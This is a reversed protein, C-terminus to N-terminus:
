PARLRLEAGDLEYLVLGTNPDRAVERGRVPLEPGVVVYDARIPTGSADVITRGNARAPKVVPPWAWLLDHATRYAFVETGPRYFANELLGNMRSQTDAPVVSIPRDPLAWVGAVRADPGVAATIWNPDPAVWDESAEGAFVTNATLVCMTILLLNTVVIMRLLRSRRPPLLMFAATAGLSLALLIALLLAGTGLAPRLLGWPVLAVTGSSVGWARGSLFESYPIFLPAALALGAAPLAFRRPRPLGVQIWLLFALLELPVVYFLLRDQAAPSPRPGTSYCAVFLVFWAFTSGATFLVVRAPRPLDVRFALAVMVIFAAFPIVGVYLDLDGLYIALWRPLSVLDFSQLPRAHGGLFGSKLAALGLFAAAGLAFLVITLRFRLLRQSFTTGGLDLRAAVLLIATALAPLLALMEVRALAALGVALLAALQGTNSPRELMRTILLVALMFAPYALSETMMKSSYVMSPVLVTLVALFLALRKDLVRRALLYAPAATSSILVSNVLQTTAYAQAASGTLAWIPAVLVSYLPGYSWAAMPAGNVAFHGSDAFNRALDAYIYEDPLIWPTASTRAYLFRAAASVVVVAGVWVTVPVNAFARELSVPPPQTLTRGSLM